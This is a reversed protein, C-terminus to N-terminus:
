HPRITRFVHAALAGRMIQATSRVPSGYRAAKQLGAWLKRSSPSILRMPRVPACLAQNKDLGKLGVPQLPTRSRIGWKPAGIGDASAPYINAVSWLPDKGFRSAIPSGDM